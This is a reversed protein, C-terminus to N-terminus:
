LTKPMEVATGKSMFLSFVRFSGVDQESVQLSHRMGSLFTPAGVYVSAIDPRLLNRGHFFSLVKKGSVVAWADPTALETANLAWSSVTLEGQNLKLTDLNGKYGTKKAASFDLINLTM